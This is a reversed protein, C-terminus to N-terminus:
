FLNIPLAIPVFTDYCEIAKSYEADYLFERGEDMLERIVSPQELQREKREVFEPYEALIIRAGSLSGKLIPEQQPVESRVKYNVYRYLSEPTVYGNDDVSGTESISRGKDDIDAKIGELGKILYKTFYSNSSQNENGKPAYSRSYSQTSLMFYKGEKKLLNKLIKDSTSRASKATQEDGEETSMATLDPKASGSYCSDIICIIERARSSNVLKTLDSLRFGGLMPENPDVEPTALFVEDDQRPIGHGSFYFLLTNGVDSTKFFNIIAKQISRFSDGPDLDSGIILNDIKYDFGKSKLLNSLGTADNKCSPLQTLTKGDLGKIHYTDVGILLAIKSM